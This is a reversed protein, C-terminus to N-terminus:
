GAPATDLFAVVHEDEYSIQERSAGTAIACFVCSKVPSTM